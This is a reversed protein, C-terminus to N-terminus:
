MPNPIDKKEILVDIFNSHGLLITRQRALSLAIDIKRSGPIEVYTIQKKQPSTQQNKESRLIRTFICYNADVTTRGSFHALNTIFYVRRRGDFDHFEGTFEGHLPTVKLGM